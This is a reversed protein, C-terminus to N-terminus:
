NQQGSTPKTVVPPTHCNDLAGGKIAEVNKVVNAKAKLDALSLRNMPNQVEAKWLWVLTNSRKPKVFTVL